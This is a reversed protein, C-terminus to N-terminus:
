TAPDYIEADSTVPCCGGTVLVRGDELAVATPSLRSRLLRGTLRWTRAEPFVTWVADTTGNAGSGGIVLVRHDVLRVLAMRESPFADRNTRHSTEILGAAFVFVAVGVFVPKAAPLGRAKLASVIVIVRKSQTMAILRLAFAALAVLTAKAVLLMRAKFRDM